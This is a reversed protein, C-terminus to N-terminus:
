NTFEIIVSPTSEYLGIGGIWEISDASVCAVLRLNNMSSGITCLSGVRVFENKIAEGSILSM